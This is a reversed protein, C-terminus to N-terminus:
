KWVAGSIGVKGGICLKEPGKAELQDKYNFSSMKFARMLPIQANSNM